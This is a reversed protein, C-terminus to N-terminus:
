FYCYNDCIAYFLSLSTPLPKQLFLVINSAVPLSHSPKLIDTSHYLDGIAYSHCAKAHKPQYLMAINMLMVSDRAIFMLVMEITRHNQGTSDPALWSVRFKSISRSPRWSMGWNGRGWCSRKWRWWSNKQGPLLIIINRLSIPSRQKLMLSAIMSNALFHHM